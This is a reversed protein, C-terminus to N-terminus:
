LEYRKFVFNVIWLILLPMILLLYSLARDFWSPPLALKEDWWAPSTPNGSNWNLYTFDKGHYTPNIFDNEVLFKNIKKYFM